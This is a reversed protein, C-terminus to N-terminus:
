ETLSLGSGGYEEPILASMWGAKTLADVFSEPYSRKEDVQQWYTSDFQKCLAAVAERLEPFNDRALNMQDQRHAQHSRSRHPALRGRGAARAVGRPPPRRPRGRAGHSGPRAGRALRPRARLRPRRDRRHRQPRAEERRRHSGDEQLVRRLLRDRARDRFPPR